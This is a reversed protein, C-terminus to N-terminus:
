PNFVNQLKFYQDVKINRNNMVWEGDGLVSSAGWHIFMGFKANRFWERAELNEKSPQYDQQALVTSLPLSFFLVLIVFM